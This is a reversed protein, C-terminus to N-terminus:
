HGNDSAFAVNQSMQIPIRRHVSKAYFNKADKKACFTSYFFNWNEGDLTVQIVLACVWTLTLRRLCKFHFPDLPRNQSQVNQM